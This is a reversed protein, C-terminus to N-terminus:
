DPLLFLSLEPIYTILMLAILLLIIYPISAKYVNIISQNFRFSSLFLNLGVPPTLYGIELNTLFIIGLHVPNINFERAVPLIIPVVVMIASFIDMMCGVVILFLNLLILFVLKSSIYVEIWEFLKMPIEEDILYNTLGLAMGMIILIGGVMVMSEQIIPLLNKKISLDKKIFFEVIFVYIATIVAAENITIIGKLIFLLIMGPIPIEWAVDKIANGFLKWSFSVKQQAVPPAQTLAYVSLIIILLFGPILGAIFLQEISTESFIGYLIIPLSPPFLLGLSGSTTVLGLAFKERYHQQILIPYVLGGIAIITVGSAGTFATFLACILLTMIALGGRLHAFLQESLHILRRPANSESLIYGAFTFFPIALLMPTTTIRYMEIIIASIDIDAAAFLILAISGIIAFLPTRLLALIILVAIMIWTM